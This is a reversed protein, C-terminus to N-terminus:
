GLPRWRSMYVTRDREARVSLEYEQLRRRFSTHAVYPHMPGLHYITPVRHIEGHRELDEVMARCDDTRPRGSPLATAADSFLVPVGSLVIM